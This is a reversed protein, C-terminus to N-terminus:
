IKIQLVTASIGVGLVEPEGPTKAHASADSSGINCNSSDQQISEIHIDEEPQDPGQATPSATSAWKDKPSM